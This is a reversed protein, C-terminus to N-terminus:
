WTVIPLILVRFDADHKDRQLMLWMMAMRTVMLMRTVMVIPIVLVLFTPMMNLDTADAAVTTVMLMIMVAHLLKPELRKVDVMGACARRGHPTSSKIADIPPPISGNAVTAVVNTSPFNNTARSREERLRCQLAYKPLFLLITSYM